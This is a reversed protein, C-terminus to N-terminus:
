ATLQKVVQTIIGDEVNAQLLTQRVDNRLNEFEAKWSLKTTQALQQRLDNVEEQLAVITLDRDTITNQQRKTLLRVGAAMGAWSAILHRQQQIPVDRELELDAAKACERWVDLNPEAVKSLQETVAKEIARTSAM